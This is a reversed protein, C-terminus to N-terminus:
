AEKTNAKLLKEVCRKSKGGRINPKIVFAWFKGLFGLSFFIELPIASNRKSNRASIEGFSFWYKRTFMNFPTRWISISCRGRWKFHDQKSYYYYNNLAIMLPLNQLGFDLQNKAFNFIVGLQNIYDEFKFPKNTNVTVAHIIIVLLLLLAIWWWFLIGMAAAFFIPM